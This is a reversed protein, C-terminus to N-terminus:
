LMGGGDGGFNPSISANHGLVSGGSAFSPMRLTNISRMFDDGWFKAAQERIIWEGRSVRALISDSTGTGPGHLKGGSAFAPIEGGEAYGPIVGSPIGRSDLVLKVTHISETPKQLEALKLLATKDDFDVALLLPNQEATSQIKQLEVTLYDTDISANIRIEEKLATKEVQDAATAAAEIEKTLEGQAKAATVAANEQGLLAQRIQENAEKIELDAKLRSESAKVIAGGTKDNTIEVDSISQVLEKRKRAFDEAVKYNGEELAKEAAATTKAIELRREQLAQYALFPSEGNINSQFSENSMSAIEVALSQRIRIVEKAYAKEQNKSNELENSIAKFARGSESVRFSALESIIKRQEAALDQEGGGLRALLELRAQTEQTTIQTIRDRRYAELALVTNVRERERDIYNNIGQGADELSQKHASFAANIREINSDIDASELSIMAQTYARINDVTNQIEVNDALHLPNAQPRRGIEANIEALKIKAEDILRGAEEISQNNFPRLDVFMGFMGQWVQELPSLINANIQRQQEEIAKAQAQIAQQKMEELESLGKNKLSEMGTELAAFLALYEERLHKIAARNNDAVEKAELMAFVLETIKSAGWTSAAVLPGGILVQAASLKKLNAILSPLTGNLGVATGQATHLARALNFWAAAKIGQMVFFFGIIKELHPALAVSVEIIKGIGAAFAKLSDRNGPDKLTNTLNELSETLVQIFGTKGIELQLLEVQLQFSRMAAAPKKLAEPVQKGFRETMLEAVKFLIDAKLRGGSVMQYFEGLRESSYGAAEAFLNLAPPLSEGLQRKLEEMQVTGKSAMQTIALFVLKMRENSLGLAVGAESFGTFVKMVEELQYKGPPLASVFKSFEEGSGLFSVKLRESESRLFQMAQGVKKADGDFAASFRLGITQERSAADFVEGVQRAVGYLGVYASVLGLVQGRLGQIVNQAARTDVSLQRTEAGAQRAGAALGTKANKLQNAAGALRQQAAALDKTDVGADTLEQEYHNVAGAASQLAQEVRNLETRTKIIGSQLDKPVPGFSEKLRAQMRDAEHQLLPLLEKLELLRRKLIEIRKTEQGTGAGSDTVVELKQLEARYSKITTETESAKARIKELERSMKPDGGSAQADFAAQELDRLKQRLQSAATGLESLKVSSSILRDVAAALTDISKDAKAVKDLETKLTSTDASGSRFAEGMDKVQRNLRTTFKELQQYTLSFEDRARLVMEVTTTKTM